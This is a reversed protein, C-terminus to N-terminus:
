DQWRRAILAGGDIVYAAGTVFSVEDSAPFLALNAVEDPTGFRGLPQCRVSRSRAAAADPQRDFSAQLMPTDVAGPCICNVRIGHAAM